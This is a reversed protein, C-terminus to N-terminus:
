RKPGGQSLPRYGREHRGAVGERAERRPVPGRAPDLHRVCVVEIADPNGFMVKSFIFKKKRSPYCNYLNFYLIKLVHYKKNPNGSKKKKCSCCKSIVAINKSVNFISCLEVNLSKENTLSCNLIHVNPLGSRAYTSIDAHEIHGMMMKKVSETNMDFYFNESVKRRERVDYLAMSAFIPEVDTLSLSLELCKVLIRHGQIEAPIEAITRREVMTFEDQEPYLSFLAEPRQELRKRDNEEDVLDPDIKALLGPLLEDPKSSQLDFSAWSGRPTESGSM